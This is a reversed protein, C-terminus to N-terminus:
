LKYKFVSNEFVSNAPKSGNGDDYFFVGIYMYGDKIVIGATAVKLITGDPNYIYNLQAEYTAANVYDFPKMDMHRGYAYPCVTDFNWKLARAGNHGEATIPQGKYFDMGQTVEHVNYKQNCTYMEVANFTGNFKTADSQETYTGYTYQNTGKGLVIKFWWNNFQSSVWVINNEGANNDGWCAAIQAISTATPYATKLGMLNVITPDLANFELVTGDALELWDSVNYFIYLAPPIGTPDNMLIPLNGILLTDINANYHCTNCHGFDHYLTKQLVFNTDYILVQGTKASHTEDPSQVFALINDGIAILDSWMPTGAPLAIREYDPSTIKRPATIEDTNIGYLYGDVTYACASNVVKKGYDTYTAILIQNDTLKFAHARIIFTSTTYDFVIVGNALLDLTTIVASPKTANKEGGVINNAYIKVQNKTTDFRLSVGSQSALMLFANSRAGGASVGYLDGDIKYASAMNVTAGYSAYTAILLSTAPLSGSMLNHPYVTFVGTATDYCVIGRETTLNLTIDASGTMGDTYVQSGCFLRSGKPITFTKATTDWSPYASANNLLAFSGTANVSVPNEAFYDTVAQEVQEDTVGGGEPIKDEIAANIDEWPLFKKDIPHVSGAKYISITLETAGDNPTVAMAESGNNNVYVVCFPDDSADGLLIYDLASHKRAVRHYPTGNWNVIYAEGDVIEVPELDFQEKNENYAPSCEALVVDGEDVWHTRNKVYDSQTPDNQALNAQVATVGGEPIPIAVNGNEDPKVGNVTNVYNGKPQKNELDERATQDVFSDYKKENLTLSKLENM